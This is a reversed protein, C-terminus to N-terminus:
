RASGALRPISNYFGEILEMGRKLLEDDSVKQTAWGRLIQNMTHGEHRGFKDDELDADHIAQAITLVRSDTIDFAMCLTEFTCRNDEHGFGAGQFMDFPVANAHVAPNIGFVFKPRADIFRAILWASSVRDIGPRPRTIWTRRQYSAKAASGRKRAAAKTAPLEAQKMADEASRRFPSTFFDIAVIEDLRRRLRSVQASPGKAAAKVKELDEILVTYDAARAKRFQDQLAADPLDDIAEIHLISAEGKSQRISTALWEFREQSEPTNPLLSGANRFPISGFRQLKRWIQVRESAKSAPLTFVLLLWKSGEQMATINM